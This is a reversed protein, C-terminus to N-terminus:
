LRAVKLIEKDTLKRYLRKDKPPCHKKISAHFGNDYSLVVIVGVTEPIIDKCKEYLSLPMAYYFEKILMSNHNHKRKKFDALFDSKSIKIEVETVYGAKSIILMDAEYTLFGWSVNPVIIHQRVDFRRAIAVEIESVTISM